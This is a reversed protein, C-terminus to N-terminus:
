LLVKGVIRKRKAMGQTHDGQPMSRNDGVVYYEDPGVKEPDMQWNCPYKIYPEPVPRGDIWLQGNRFAVVEGPLGVVRKMLMVRKGAMRISIVDGRQPGQSRYALANVVNVRGQRYTPLMSVGEVRIPILVFKALIFTLTVLVVIRVATWSPNRGILIIRAWSHDEVLVKDSSVSM